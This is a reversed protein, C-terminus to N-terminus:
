LLYKYCCVNKAFIKDFVFIASNDKHNKDYAIAHILLTRNAEASLGAWFGACDQM